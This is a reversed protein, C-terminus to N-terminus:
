DGQSKKEEGARGRPAESDSHGDGSVRWLALPDRLFRRWCPPCLDLRMEKHVDEEASKADQRSLVDLIENMESDLDRDLDAASIEMPDYAAHGRIDVVYRVDSDLLLAAGCGDCVLGDSV